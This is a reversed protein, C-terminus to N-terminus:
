EQAEDDTEPEPATTAAERQSQAVIGQRLATQASGIAQDADWGQARAAALATQEPIGLAQCYASLMALKAPTMGPLTQDSLTPQSAQPQPQPQQAAPGGLRSLAGGNGLLGGLIRELHSPPEENGAADRWTQVIGLARELATETDDGDGLNSVDSELREIRIALQTWSDRLADIKQELRVLEPDRQPYAFAAPQYPYGGAPQQYVPPAPQQPWGPPPPAPQQPASTPQQPWGPPFQPRPQAAEQPDAGTEPSPMPPDGAPEAPQRQFSAVTVPPHDIRYKRLRGGADEVVFTGAGFRERLEAFGPEAASERRADPWEAIQAYHSGTYRHVKWPPAELKDRVDGRFRHSVDSSRSRKKRIRPPERVEASVPEAPEEGSGPEIAPDSPEPTTM